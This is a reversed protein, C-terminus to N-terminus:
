FSWTMMALDFTEPPFPLAEARAQVFTLSSALVLPCERRAVALRKSAPDSASVRRASTAYCWTLRGDGCGIELVHAQELEAVEYLYKIEIKDPDYQAPVSFV